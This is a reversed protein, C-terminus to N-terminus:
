RCSAAEGRSLEMRRWEHIGSAPVAIALETTSDVARLLGVLEGRQDFVPGGSFGPETAPELLMALGTGYAAGATYAHVRGPIVRFRGDIWAALLVADGVAPDDAALTATAGGDEPHARPWRLAALDIAALGSGEAGSALETVVPSTRLLVANAQEVLHRNTLVGDDVVVANGAISNGCRVAEIPLTVSRAQDSLRAITEDDFPGLDPEPPSHAPWAAVALTIALGVLVSAAGRVV